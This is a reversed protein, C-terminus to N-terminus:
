RRITLVPCLSERVVKETVSGLFFHALRARGHTAMVIMGAELHEAAELIVTAPDGVGIRIEYHMANSLREQAIAHLKERATQEAWVLDVGGSKEDRRYLEAPIRAEEAPLVYLLYLRAGNQRAFHAAYELAVISNESFDVPCLITRLPEVM